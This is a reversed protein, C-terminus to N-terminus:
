WGFSFGFGWRPGYVPAYVVPPACPAGSKRYVPPAYVRYPSAPAYGWVYRPAAPHRCAHRDGHLTRGRPHDGYPSGGHRVKGEAFANGAALLLSLGALILVFSKVAKM